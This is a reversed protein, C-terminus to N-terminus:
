DGFDEETKRQRLEERRLSPIEGALIESFTTEISFGGALKVSTRRIPVFTFRAKILEEMNYLEETTVLTTTDLSFYIMLIKGNQDLRFGIGFQENRGALTKVKETGVAEKVLGVFVDHVSTKYGLFGMDANFYSPYESWIKEKDYKKNIYISVNRVRNKQRLYAKAGTGITSVTWQYELPLDEEDQAIAANLYLTAIITLTLARFIRSTKM